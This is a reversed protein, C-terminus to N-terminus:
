LYMILASLSLSTIILITTKDKISPKKKTLQQLGEGNYHLNTSYDSLKALISVSLPLKTEYSPNAKPNTNELYFCSFEIFILRLLYKAM